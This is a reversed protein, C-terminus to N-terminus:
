LANNGLDRFTKLQIVKKRPGKAWLVMGFDVRESEHQVKLPIEEYKELFISRSKKYIPEYQVKMNSYFIRQAKKVSM